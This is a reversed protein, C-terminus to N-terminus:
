PHTVPFFGVYFWHGYNIWGHDPSTWNVSLEILFLQTIQCVFIPSSNKQKCTVKHILVCNHSHGLTKNESVPFYWSYVCAQMQHMCKLYQWIESIFHVLDWFQFTERRTKCNDKHLINFDPILNLMSIYSCCRQCVISWSCRLSWCNEQRSLHTKAQFNSLVDKM